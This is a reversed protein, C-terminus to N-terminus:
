PLQEGCAETAEGTAGDRNVAVEICLEEGPEGTLTFERGGQILADGTSTRVHYTDTDVLGPDEWTFSVRGSDPEELGTMVELLTTKGEGNRGVIGIREGVSVGLSVDALLPRVGYSKSVRELNILNSM